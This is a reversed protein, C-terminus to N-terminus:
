SHTCQSHPADQCSFALLNSTNEEPILVALLLLPSFLDLSVSGHFETAKLKGIHHLQNDRRSM